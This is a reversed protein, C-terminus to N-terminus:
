ETLEFRVKLGEPSIKMKNITNKLELNELQYIYIYIHVYTIEIKKHFERNASGDKEYKLEKAIIEKWEKFM